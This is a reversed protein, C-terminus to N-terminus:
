EIDKTQEKVRKLIASLDGKYHQKGADKGYRIKDQEIKEALADKAVEMSRKVSEQHSMLKGEKKLKMYEDYPLNKLEEESMNNIDVKGTKEDIVQLKSLEDVPLEQELRNREDLIKDIREDSMGVSKYYARAREKRKTAEPSLQPREEPSDLGILAKLDLKGQRTFPMNQMASLKAFMGLDNQLIESIVLLEMIQEESLKDMHLIIDIGYSVLLRQQIAGLISQSHRIAGIYMERLTVPDEFDCLGVATVCAELIKGPPIKNIDCNEPYVVVKSFFIDTVDPDLEYEAKSNPDNSYNTSHKSFYTYENFNPQRVVISHTDNAQAYTIAQVKGHKSRLNELVRRDLLM